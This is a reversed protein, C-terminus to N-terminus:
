ELGPDRPEEERAQPDPTTEQLPPIPLPSEQGTAMAEEVMEALTELQKAITADWEEKGARVLCGGREVRRDQQIDHIRLAELFESNGQLLAADEPNVVLQLPGADLLKFQITHLARDLVAPDLEITKRVVKEAVQVALGACAASVDKLQAGMAQQLQAALIQLSNQFVKEQDQLKAEFEKRLADEREQYETAVDQEVLDFLQAREKRTLHNLLSQTDSFGAESRFRARVDDEQGEAGTQADPEFAAPHDLVVAGVLTETSFADPLWKQM